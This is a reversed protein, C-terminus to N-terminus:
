LLDTILNSAGLRFWDNSISRNLVCEALHIYELAQAKTKIGGSAKFGCLLESDKIAQLMAFASEITAGVAIKGTSTKIFDCGQRIVERSLTYIYEASPLAGTELIVKFTINHQKCLQYNRKCLSLALEKNGNVYNQYPFVYDIEDIKYQNIVQLISQEVENQPNNGTPFNIVTATKFPRPYSLSSLHNPLICISAVDLNSGTHQLHLIDEETATNSLLTLDILQLIEQNSVTRLTRNAILQNTQELQESLNM